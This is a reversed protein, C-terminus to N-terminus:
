VDNVADLQTLVAPLFTQDIEFEFELKSGYCAVAWADGTVEIGGMGNGRLVLVLQEDRPRLEAVGNLSQYLSQLQQHFVAFDHSEFYATIAATFGNVRIEADGEIWDTRAQSKKIHIEVFESDNGVRIIPM